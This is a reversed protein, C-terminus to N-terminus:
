PCEDYRENGIEKKANLVRVVRAWVTAYMKNLNVGMEILHRPESSIILPICLQYM